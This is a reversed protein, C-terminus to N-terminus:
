NGGRISEWRRQVEGSVQKAKDPTDILQLQPKVREAASIMENARVLEASESRHIGILKPSEAIGRQMLVPFVALFAKRKQGFEFSDIEQSCASPWSGFVERVAVGVAPNAFQVTAYAGFQRMAREVTSWALLALAEYDVKPRLIAILDSLAPFWKSELMWRHTAARLAEVTFPTLGAIYVGWQADNLSHAKGDKDPYYNRVLTLERIIEERTM